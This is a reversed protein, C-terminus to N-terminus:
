FIHHIILGLGVGSSGGWPDLLRHANAVDRPISPRRIPANHWWAGNMVGIIDRRHCFGM